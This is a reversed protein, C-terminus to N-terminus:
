KGVAGVGSLPVRGIIRARWVHMQPSNPNAVVAELRTHNAATVTVVIGKRMRYHGRYPLLRDTLVVPV